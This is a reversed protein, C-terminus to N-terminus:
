AVRRLPALLTAALLRLDGRISRGEVYRVDSALKAPLIERRYTAVRDAGRLLGPERAAWALQTPGTIGPRVSLVRTWRRDRLDVLSPDEPRPGVLSMEGRLVNWLQPWEDLRLRRLAAGVRTIRADGGATLPGGAGQRMTRLKWMTFPVGGRGVRRAAHLVGGRSEAAVALAALAALPALLLLGLLACVVDFARM